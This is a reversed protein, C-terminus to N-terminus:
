REAANTKGTPVHFNERPTVKNVLNTVQGPKDTLPGKVREVFTTEKSQNNDQKKLSNGLSEVEQGAVRTKEAISRDVEDSSILPTISGGTYITDVVSGAEYIKTGLDLDSYGLAFGAGTAVMSAYGLAVMYPDDQRNAAKAEYLRAKETIVGMVSSRISSQLLDWDRLVKQYYDKSIDDIQKQVEMSELDKLVNQQEKLAAEMDKNGNNYAEELAEIREQTTKIAAKLQNDFESKQASHNFKVLEKDWENKCTELAESTKNNLQNEVANLYDRLKNEIDKSTPNHGIEPFKIIEDIDEFKERNKEIGLEVANELNQQMADYTDALDPFLTRVSAIEMIEQETNQQDGRNPAHDKFSDLEKARKALETNLKHNLGARAQLDTGFSVATHTIFAAKAAPGAFPTLVPNFSAISAATGFGYIAVMFPNGTVKSVEEQRLKAKESVVAAVSSRVGSRLEEWNESMENYLKSSARDFQQEKSMEQLEELINYQRRLAAKNSVKDKELESIKERTSDIATQIREDGNMKNWLKDAANLADKRWIKECDREAIRRSRELIEEAGNIYGDIKDRVTRPTDDYGIEPFQIKSIDFSEVRSQNESRVASRSKKFFGEMGNNLKKVDPFSSYIERRISAKERKKEEERANEIDLFYKAKSSRVDARMKEWNKDMKLYLKEVSKDFQKEPSISMLKQLIIEQKRLEAKVEQMTGNEGGRHSYAKELEDIKSQTKEIAERLSKNFNSTQPSNEIERLGKNLNRECDREIIRGIGRVKGVAKDVDDRIKQEASELSEYAQIQMFGPFDSERDDLVNRKVEQLKLNNPIIASEISQDISVQMQDYERMLEPFLGHLESIAEQKESKGM